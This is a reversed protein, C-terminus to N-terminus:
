KNNLVYNIFKDLIEKKNINYEINYGVLNNNDIIPNFIFTEKEYIYKFKDIPLEVYNDDIIIQYIKNINNNKYKLFINKCFILYQTDSLNTFLLRNYLTNNYIYKYSLGFSIVLGFISYVIKM